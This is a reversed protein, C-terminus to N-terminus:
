DSMANQDRTFKMQWLKWQNRHIEQQLFLHNHHITFSRAPMFFSSLLLFLFSLTTTITGSIAARLHSSKVCFFTWMSTNNFTLALLMSVRKIWSSKLQIKLKLIIRTRKKQPHQQWQLMEWTVVMTMVVVTQRKLLCALLLLLSLPSSGLM